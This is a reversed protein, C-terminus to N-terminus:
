VGENQWEKGRFRGVTAFIATKRTCTYGVSPFITIGCFRLKHLKQLGFLPKKPGFISNKAAMAAGNTQLPATKMMCRPARQLGAAARNCVLPAAVTFGDDDPSSKPADRGSKKAIKM